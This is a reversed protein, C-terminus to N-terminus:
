PVNGFTPITAGNVALLNFDAQQQRREASTAPLVSVEAGTDILFYYNSIIDTIYFLRSHSLGAVGTVKLLHGHM